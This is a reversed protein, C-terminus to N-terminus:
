EYSFHAFRSNASENSFKRIRIRLYRYLYTTYTYYTLSISGKHSKINIKFTSNFYVHLVQNSNM